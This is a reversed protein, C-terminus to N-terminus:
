REILSGNEFQLFAYSTGFSNSAFCEVKQLNQLDSEELIMNDSNDENEVEVGDLKWQFNVSDSSILQNDNMCELQNIESDWVVKYNAPPTQTAEVALYCHTYHTKLIRLM